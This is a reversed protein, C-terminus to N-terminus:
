LVTVNWSAGYGNYGVGRLNWESFMPQTNGGADTARSYITRNVGKDIRISVRWLVWAWKYNHGLRSCHLEADVWTKGEDGSVEVRIVPGQDGQPVAYGRVEIFGDPSRTVTEEDDPVAVVSNVPTEQMAPVKSWYKEAMEWTLVEPPLIKYDHVQYYNSSETKQVSIRDLWKVWRAGIIGPLIVRVPYGYDPRLTEGNMELALIVEKDPQMARWLEVSGAYYDDDECVAQFSAFAVHLPGQVAYESRVDARRLIDRLRPGKWTCNMVAGDKWDVGCVEKLRTRMTHRRNGACQLACTVEHQPFEYKLQNLTLSLPRKVEGVVQVLHLSGDIAPFASHNRHYGGSTTLYRSVLDQVPPERNVPKEALSNKEM